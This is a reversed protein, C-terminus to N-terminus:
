VNNKLKKEFMIQQENQGEAFFVGGKDSLEVWMTVQEDVKVIYTDGQEESYDTLVTVEEGVNLRDVSSLCVLKDGAKLKNSMIKENSDVSIDGVMTGDVEFIMYEEIDEIFYKKSVKHGYVGAEFGQKTQITQHHYCDCYGCWVSGVFALSEYDGDLSSLMGFLLGNPNYDKSVFKESKVCVINEKGIFQSVSEDDFSIKKFSYSM